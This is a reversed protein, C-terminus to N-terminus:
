ALGQQQQLTDLVLWALVAWLAHGGGTFTVLLDRYAVLLCQAGGEVLDSGNRHADIGLQGAELEVAFTWMCCLVEFKYIHFPPLTYPSGEHPIHKINAHCIAQSTQRFCQAVHTPDHILVKKAEYFM